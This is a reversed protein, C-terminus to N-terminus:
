HQRDGTPTGNQSLTVILLPEAHPRLADAIEVDTMAVPEHRRRWKEFRLWVCWTLYCILALVLGAILALAIFTGIITLM